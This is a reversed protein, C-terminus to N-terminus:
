KGAKYGGSHFHGWNSVAVSGRGAEQMQYRKLIQLFTLNDGQGVKYFLHAPCCAPDIALDVDFGDIGGFVTEAWGCDNTCDGEQCPFDVYRRDGVVRTVSLYASAPMLAVQGYISVGYKVMNKVLFKKVFEPVEIGGVEQQNKLYLDMLLHHPMNSNWAFPAAIIDPVSILKILEAVNGKTIYDEAHGAMTAPILKLLKGADGYHTEYQMWITWPLESGGFTYEKAM